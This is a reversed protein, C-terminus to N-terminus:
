YFSINDVFSGLVLESLIQEPNLIEDIIALLLDFDNCARLGGKTLITTTLNHKNLIEIAHRSLKFKDNAPQYLDSTFSLLIPRTDNKLKKADREIQELINPRPKIFQDSIFIERNTFTASPAYCYSCAHSCGKYLNAALPSYELAKGKPEYIIM